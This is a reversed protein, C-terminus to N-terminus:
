KLGPKKIGHHLCAQRVRYPSIRLFAAIMHYTNGAVRMRKVDVMDLGDAPDREHVALGLRICENKVHNPSVRLAETISLQKAISRYSEGAKWMRKVAVIDLPKKKRGPGIQGNPGAIGQAIHAQLGAKTRESIIRREEQAMEAFMSIITTGFSKKSDLYPQQYSLYSIGNESLQALYQLMPLTGERTFRDVAWFLVGDFKKSEADKLMQQFQARDGNKGSAYDEYVHTIQWGKEKAYAELELRQNITDQGKDKTSVRLYLVYRMQRM